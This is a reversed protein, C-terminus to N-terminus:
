MVVPIEKPCCSIVAWPGEVCCSLGVCYLYKSRHEDGSPGVLPSNRPVPCCMVSHSM